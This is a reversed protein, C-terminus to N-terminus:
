SKHRHSTQASDSPAPRSDPGPGRTPASTEVDKLLRNLDSNDHGRKEHPGSSQSTPPSDDSESYHRKTM